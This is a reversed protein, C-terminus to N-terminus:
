PVYRYNEYTWSRIGRTDGFLSYHYKISTFIVIIIKGEPTDVEGQEIISNAQKLKFIGLARSYTKNMNSEFRQIYLNEVDVYIKGVSRNMIEKVDDGNTRVKGNAQFNIVLYAKGNKSLLPCSPCDTTPSAMEYDFRQSLAETIKNFENNSDQRKNKSEGDEEVLMEDGHPPLVEIVQDTITKKPNGSDDVKIDTYHKKFNLHKNKLEENVKMKEIVKQMIMTAPNDSVEQSFLPMPSILLGFLLISLKLPKM